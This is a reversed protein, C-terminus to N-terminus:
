MGTNVYQICDGQNKFESGDERTLEKWGDNKCEDSNQPEDYTYLTQDVVTNDFRV